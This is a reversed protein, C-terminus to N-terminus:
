SRDAGPTPGLHQRLWLVSPEATIHTTTRLLCLVVYGGVNPLSGQSVCNLKCFDQDIRTTDFGGDDIRARERAETGPCHWLYSRRDQCPECEFAVDDLNHLSAGHQV